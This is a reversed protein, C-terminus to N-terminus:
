PVTFYIRRGDTPCSDACGCGKHTITTFEYTGPALIGWANGRSPDQQQTCKMAWSDSYPNGAVNVVTWDPNHYEYLVASLCYFCGYGGQVQDCYLWQSWHWGCPIGHGYYVSQIRDGLNSACPGAGAVAAAVLATVLFRSTIGHRAAM